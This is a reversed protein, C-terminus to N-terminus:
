ACNPGSSIQFVGASFAGNEPVRNSTTLTDGNYRIDKESITPWKEHHSSLESIDMLARRMADGVVVLMTKQMGPHLAPLRSFEHAKPPQDHIIPLKNNM